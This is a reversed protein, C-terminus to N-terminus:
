SPLMVMSITFGILTTILSAIPRILFRYTKDKIGGGIRSAYYGIKNALKISINFLRGLLGIMKLGLKKIGKWIKKGVFKIAKIGLKTVIKAGSFRIISKVGGQLSKAFGKVRVKKIANKVTRGM